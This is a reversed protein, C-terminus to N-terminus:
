CISGTRGHYMPPYANHRMALANKRCDQPQLDRTSAIQPRIDASRVSCCVGSFLLVGTVLVADRSTCTALSKVNLFFCWFPIRLGGHEPCYEWTRPFNHRGPGQQPYVLLVAQCFMNSSMRTRVQRYCTADQQMRDVNGPFRQQQHSKHLASVSNVESIRVGVFSDPLNQSRLCMNVSPMGHLRSLTDLDQQARSPFPQFSM